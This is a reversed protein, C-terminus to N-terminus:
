GDDGNEADHIDAGRLEHIRCLISLHCRECTEDRKPRVRADGAAYEEALDTLNRQWYALLAPWDEVGEPPNRRSAYATMGWGLGERESLGSFGMEGPKLCAYGVGALRERNGVAYLPLQPDDPREDLWDQVNVRGTKYDLILRGGDGLEDIRDVRTRLSLPGLKLLHEAESEVVRFPPRAAELELWAAVRAALRQRELETVRPTYVDPLERARAATARAAARDALAGRAEVDMATLSAHDKLEGWVAHLVEHVLRGRELADPGLAPEELPGARLRHAGFAQFPCAAQSALLGTGGRTQEGPRLAPGRMDGHREAALGYDRQLLARYPEVAVLDLSEAPPLHEILPSPRLIEDAESAPSSAVTRDASALLRGTLQRAFKLERAASAHPLGFERQLRPPIFAAPRPSAPWVQDSLGMIWLHDFALGATELLGLVQVPADAGAPQFIYEGLARRLRALAEGLSVAGLVADLHVLTGMEDRLASVAQFEASDLVREGPWGLCRLADAFAAGWASPVQRAPLGAIKMELEQLAATLRPVSGLGSAHNVLAQLSVEESVRERLRLELRARSERESEAAALFPSRLLLSMTTFPARRRLLELAALAAHVVPFSSLPLGLSLDYPRAADRGSAAGPCLADDLARSLAARCEGLDRVVIGISAAPERDLIGRAWAAAARQEAAGDAEVRRVASDAAGVELSQLMVHSGGARLSEILEQQQPTFEDFGAFLVQRPATLTKNRLQTALWDTLRADELWGEKRSLARFREAWGMFAQADEDGEAFRDLPVRYAVALEWARAAERATAAPQLLEAGMVSGRIAEEWRAEVAAATIRRPPPTAGGLSAVAAQDYLRNGFAGYSLVPPREWARVGSINRAEGHALLVARALREGSTVVTAGADLAALTEAQHWIRKFAM